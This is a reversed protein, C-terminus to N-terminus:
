EAVLAPVNCAAGLGPEFLNGAIELGEPYVAAGTAERGQPALCLAYEFRPEGGAHVLNGRITIARLPPAEPVQPGDLYIAHTGAARPRQGGWNWWADGHGCATILNGEITIREDRNDPASSSGPNVLIGWLDVRSLLNGAIVAGACGHTLKIGILANDIRNGTVRLEDAHLDIGQAAQGILNGRIVIGRSVRPDTVLIASGQHWNRVYGTRRVEEGLRGASAPYRGDVLEGLEHALQIGRTPRWRTERIQNGELTVGRSSRVLIGTGDLCRFAYGYLDAASSGPPGTRDDISLATYDLIRCGAISAGDSQTVEIAGRPAANGRVELRECRLRPADAVLVAPASAVAAPPRVLELGALVADPCHEIEIAPEAPNTQELRGPGLLGRASNEDLRIRETLRWDGGDLAVLAGPHADVAAQLTPYGRASVAPAAPAALPALLVALLTARPM